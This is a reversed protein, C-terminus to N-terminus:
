ATPTRKGLGGRANVLLQYDRTLMERAQPSATMAEVFIKHDRAWDVYRHDYTPSVLASESVADYLLLAPSRTNSVGTHAIGVRVVPQANRDQQNSGVVQLAHDAVRAAAETHEIPDGEIVIVLPNGVLFVRAGNMESMAVIALANLLRLAEGADTKTSKPVGFHVLSCPGEFPLAPLSNELNEM